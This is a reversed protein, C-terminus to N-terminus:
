SHILEVSTFMPSFGQLVLTYYSLFPVMISIKKCCEDLQGRLMYDSLYSLYLVIFLEFSNAETAQLTESLVTIDNM